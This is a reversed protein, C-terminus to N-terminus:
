GEAQGGELPHHAHIVKVLDAAAMVSQEQVSLILLRDSEPNLALLTVGPFKTILTLTLNSSAIGLEVIIVDPRAARLWEMDNGAQAEVREIELDPIAMLSANLGAIFLSGGYLLIKQKKQM